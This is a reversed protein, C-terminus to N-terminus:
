EDEDTEVDEAEVGEAIAAKELELGKALGREFGKVCGGRISNQKNAKYDEFKKPFKVLCEVIDGAKEAPVKVIGRAWLRGFMVGLEESYEKKSVIWGDPGRRSEVGPEPDGKMVRVMEEEQRDKQVESVGTIQKITVVRNANRWMEFVKPTLKNAINHLATVYPQSKGITLAISSDTEGDNGAMTKIAWALDAKHLSSRLVNERINMARAQAETMNRVVVKMMGRMAPNNAVDVRTGAKVEDRLQTIARARRFGSVLRVKGGAKSPQRCYGPTDQGDTALGLVLGPFSSGDVAAKGADEDSSDEAWNGSRANWANDIEIDDVSLLV